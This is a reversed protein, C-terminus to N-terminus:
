SRPSTTRHANRVAFEPRKGDNADVGEGAPDGQAGGGGRVAAVARADGECRAPRATGRSVGRGRGRGGGGARDLLARRNMNVGILVLRSYRTRCLKNNWKGVAQLKEKKDYCMAGM